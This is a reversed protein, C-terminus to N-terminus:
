VEEEVENLDKKAIEKDGGERNNLLKFKKRVVTYCYSFKM